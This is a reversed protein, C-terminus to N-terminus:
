VCNFLFNIWLPYRLLLHGFHLVSFCFIFIVSYHFTVYIVCFAPRGKQFQLRPFIPYSIPCFYYRFIARFQVFSSFPMLNDLWLIPLVVFRLIIFIFQFETKYKFVASIFIYLVLTLFGDSILSMLCTINWLVTHNVILNEIFIISVLICQSPMKLHHFFVFKLFIKSLLVTIWFCLLFLSTKLFFFSIHSFKNCSSACYFM